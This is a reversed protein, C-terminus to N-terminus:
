AKSASEVRKQLFLLLANIKNSIFISMGRYIVIVVIETVPRFAFKLLPLPAAWKCPELFAQQPFADEAVLINVHYHALQFSFYLVGNREGPFAGEWFLLKEHIM